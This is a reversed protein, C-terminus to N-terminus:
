PKAEFWKADPGCKDVYARVSGCPDNYTTGDVPNTNEAKACKANWPGLESEKYHKCDKCLKM